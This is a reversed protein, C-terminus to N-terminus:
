LPIGASQCALKVVGKVVDSATSSALTQGWRILKEKMTPDSEAERAIKQAVEKQANEDQEGSARLQDLLKQIQIAAQTLDQSMNVIYDRQAYNGAINENYPSNDGHMNIIRDGAVEAGMKFAKFIVEQLPVTELPDRQDGQEIEAQYTSQFDDQAIGADTSEPVDFKILADDGIMEFGLFTYKRDQTLQNITNLLAQKNDDNRALVQFQGKDKRFIKEFDGNAFNKPQPPFRRRGAMKDSYEELFVYNCDVNKLSTTRGITWDLICAVTLRADTLDAGDLNAQQLNAHELNANQLNAQNLNSSIFSAHSLDVSELNIGELNLGDFNKNKVTRGLVLQRISPHKLYSSGVRAYELSKAGQWRTMMIKADKFNAGRLESATFIARTLDTRVFLTGGHVVFRIYIKWLWNFRKGPSIASKAFWCGFVAGLIAGFIGSGLAGTYELNLLEFLSSLFRQETTKLSDSFVFFMLMALAAITALAVGSFDDESDTTIIAIITGLLVMLIMSSGIGVHAKVLWGDIYTILFTRILVTLVVAWVGILVSTLFSMNKQSARFFHLSLTSVIATPFASLLCLLVSVFIVFFRWSRSLGAKSGTFDAHYLTADTFDTGRIDASSFDVRPLSDNLDVSVNSFVAERLNAGHFNAGQIEAGSFDVKHLNARSFNAGRLDSGAFFDKGKLNQGSFNQERLDRRGSRNYAM